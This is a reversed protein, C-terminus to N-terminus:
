TGFKMNFKCKKINQVLNVWFTYRWDLVSFTFVMM